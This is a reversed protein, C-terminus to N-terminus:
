RVAVLRVNGATLTWRGGVREIQEVPGAGPLKGGVSVPRIGKGNLTVIEVFAIGDIVTMLRYDQVPFEASYPQAARFGGARAETGASTSQTTLSDVQVADDTTLKRKPPPFNLGMDAPPNEMSRLKVVKYGAFAICVAALSVTLAYAFVDTIKPTM